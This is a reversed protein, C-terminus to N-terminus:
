MTSKYDTHHVKDGTIFDYFIHTFYLNGPVNHRLKNYHMMYVRNEVFVKELKNQM